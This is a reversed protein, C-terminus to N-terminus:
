YPYLLLVRKTNRMLFHRNGKVGKYTTISIIIMDDRITVEDSIKAIIM